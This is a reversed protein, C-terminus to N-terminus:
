LMLHPELMPRGALIVLDVTIENFPAGEVHLRNSLPTMTTVHPLLAADLAFRYTLRVADFQTMQREFLRIVGDNVYDAKDTGGYLVSRLEQLHFRGPIVKIVLGGGVLVRKLEMYNSPSLVNLIVDFQRDAFPMRAIDGVTWIQKDFSQAAMRIGPKAIDLGTGFPRHLSTCVESLLSGEGSGADLIRILHSPEPVRQQIIQSLQQVLPDFWGAQM